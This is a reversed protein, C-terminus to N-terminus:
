CAKLCITREVVRHGKKKVHIFLDLPTFLLQHRCVCDETNHKFACGSDWLAICVCYFM